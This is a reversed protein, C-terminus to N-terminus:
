EADDKKVKGKKLTNLDEALRNIAQKLGDIVEMTAYEPKAAVVEAERVYTVVNTTGDSLNFTKSYLKDNAMEKFFVPSGDFPIQAADVEARSGVAICPFTTRVPMTPRYEQRQQFNPNVFDSHFGNPPLNSQLYTNYAM